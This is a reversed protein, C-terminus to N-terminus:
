QLRISLIANKYINKIVKVFNSERELTSYLKIIFPHEIKNFEKETDNLIIRHDEKKRKNIYSLYCQNIKFIQGARCKRSYVTGNKKYYQPKFEPGEGQAVGGARNKHLTKRLYPRM